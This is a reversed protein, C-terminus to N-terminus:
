QNAVLAALKSRCKDKSNPVFGMPEELLNRCRGSVTSLCLFYSGLYTLIDPKCSLSFFGASELVKRTRIVNKSDLYNPFYACILYSGGKEKPSTAVKASWLAGEYVLVAIKEWSQYINEPKSFIMWKGALIGTKRAIEDIDADSPNKGEGLLLQFYMLAQQIQMERDSSGKDEHVVATWAFKLSAPSDPAYHRLFTEFEDRCEGVLPSGPPPAVYVM